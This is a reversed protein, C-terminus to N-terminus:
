RSRATGFNAVYALGRPPANGRLRVCSCSSDSASAQESARTSYARKPQHAADPVRRGLAVACRGEMLACQSCERTQEAVRWARERFRVTRFPCSASRGPPAIAAPLVASPIRISPTRVVALQGVQRRAAHVRLGAVSRTSQVTRTWQVLRARRLLSASAMQAHKARPAASPAVCGRARAKRGVTTASARGTPPTASASAGRRM